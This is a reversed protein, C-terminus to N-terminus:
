IVEARSFNITADGARGKVREARLRAGLTARAAGSPRIGDIL